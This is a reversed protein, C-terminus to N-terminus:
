ELIIFIKKALIATVIKLDQWKWEKIKLGRELFEEQRKVLDKINKIKCNHRTAFLVYGYRGRLPNQKEGAICSLGPSHPSEYAYCSSCRAYKNKMKM